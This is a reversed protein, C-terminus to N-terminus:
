ADSRGAIAEAQRERRGSGERRADSVVMGGFKAKYKYFTAESIGHKRCVDATKMGAEQEKLMGIIQKETFRSRKM